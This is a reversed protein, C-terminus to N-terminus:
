ISLLVCQTTTKKKEEYNTNTACNKKWFVLYYEARIQPITTYSKSYYYYYNYYHTINRSALFGFLCFIEKRKRRRITYLKLVDTWIWIFIVFFMGSKIKLESLSNKTDKRKLIKRKRNLICIYNLSSRISTINLYRAPRLDTPIKM